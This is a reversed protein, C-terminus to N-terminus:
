PVVISIPNKNNASGVARAAKPNGIAVAIDKYSATQGYTVDTLAQWVSKQFATGKLDMPLDFDRLKGDFYADLQAKVERYLPTDEFPQTQQKEFYLGLLSNDNYELLLGGVPSLYINQM